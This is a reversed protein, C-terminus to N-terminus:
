SAPAQHRDSRRPSLRALLLALRRKIAQQPPLEAFAPIRTPIYGLSAYAAYIQEGLARAEADDECRLGDRELPLGQLYFVHRYRYTSARRSLEILETEPLKLRRFYALSDPLARDLFVRSLPSLAGEVGLQRRLIAHQIDIRPAPDAAIEEPSKGLTMLHARATEAATRHGRAALAQIVSTKGASPPGTIVCWATAIPRSERQHNNRSHNLLPLM